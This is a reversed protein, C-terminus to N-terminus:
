GASGLSRPRFVGAETVVADLPIDHPQPGISRVRALEFGVGVAVPCPVLAALTRDFFGGGYGLRFCAEDFAVLPLLVVEPVLVESGDPVPIGYPDQTMPTAPTWARFTMPAAPALVVPQCARWGSALLRRALPLCDFEGRMPWCFALVASPRPALLQWLSAEIRASKEAREDEAMAQRAAIRERRLTSRFAASDPASDAPHDASVQPPPM